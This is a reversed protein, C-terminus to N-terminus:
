GSRNWELMGGEVNYVKKFGKGTLILSATISRNGSRCIVYVPFNKYANIEDARSSLLHLPILKSGRIHGLEGSYEEETRVDLVLVKKGNDLAKKVQHVNVNSYERSTCASVIYLLLLSAIFSKKIM